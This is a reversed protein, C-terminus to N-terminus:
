KIYSLSFCTGLKMLTELLSEETIWTEEKGAHGGDLFYMADIQSIMRRLVPDKTTEPGYHFEYLFQNLVVCGKSFGILRFRYKTFDTKNGKDWRFVDCIKDNQHFYKILM